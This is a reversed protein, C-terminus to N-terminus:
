RKGKRDRLWWVTLGATAWITFGLASGLAIGLIENDEFTLM